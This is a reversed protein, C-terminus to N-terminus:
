TRPGLRFQDGVTPLADALWGSQVELVSRSGYAGVVVRWPKVGVRVDAVTLGRDLFILDISFQMFFTHISGCPDFWMAKGAAFGSRGLLGRMRELPSEALVVDPLRLGADSQLSITKM